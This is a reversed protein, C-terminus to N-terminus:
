FFECRFVGEGDLDMTNGMGPVVPILVDATFDIGVYINDGSSSGECPQEDDAACVSTASAATTGRTITVDSATLTVLPKSSEIAEAKIAACDRGKIVGYRATQRASNGLALDQAFLFGFTIIAFVLLLLIPVVLAFEVAAAGRDDRRRQTM